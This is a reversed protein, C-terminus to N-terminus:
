RLLKAQWIFKVAKHAASDPLKTAVNTKKIYTDCDWHFPPEVCTTFKGNMKEAPLVRCAFITTLRMCLKVIQEIQITCQEAAHSRLDVLSQNYLAIFSVAYFIAVQFRLHGELSQFFLFSCSSSVTYLQLTCIPTATERTTDPQINWYATTAIFLWESRQSEEPNQLASKLCVSTFVCVCEVFMTMMM